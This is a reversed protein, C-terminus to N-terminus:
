NFLLKTKAIYIVDGACIRCPRSQIVQYCIGDEIKKIRIGNRSDLDELYWNDLSYNLVAHQVDILASFECDNLDIDVDEDKHRRGLVVATKGTLDWSKVPNEHEDLLILEHGIMAAATQESGVNYRESIRKHRSWSNVAVGSLILVFAASVAIAIAPLRLLFALLLWLCSLVLIISDLMIKQKKYENM